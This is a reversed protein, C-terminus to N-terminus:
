LNMDGTKDYYMKPPGWEAIKWGTNTKLGDWCNCPGKFLQAFTMQQFSTGPHHMEACMQLADYTIIVFVGPFDGPICLRDDVDIDESTCTSADRYYHVTYGIDQEQGSM